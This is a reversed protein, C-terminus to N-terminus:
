GILDDDDRLEEAIKEIVESSINLQRVSIRLAVRVASVNSLDIGVPDMESFYRQLAVIHARDELSLRINM